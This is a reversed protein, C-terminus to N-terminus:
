PLIEVIVGEEAWQYLVNANESSLLICGYTVRTGLNNTWLLQSGGRTPFGHFGNTFDAGPVPRYVGMFNPMYLNWNGAYANPVHSIIQYVGPWTPSTNIGTSAAWDWKLQDNEYVRTRQESMSVVIRKNPVVPYDLFNDASPITIAQGVTLSDGAGPNAQQVWPYPVGYDWAISTITEGPQVIHQNDHHFLRVQVQLDRQALATQVAEIAADVDIYQASNLASQRGTLYDRLAAAELALSLGIPSTRDPQATLWQSWQAPPLSWNYQQNDIPDFATIQLPQALLDTALALIPSVDTITPEVTLMSLDLVGDAIEADLSSELRALMDILDLKRGPASATAEIRGDILRIGANIPAVDFRSALEDLTVTALSLNLDIKPAVDVDGFLAELPSGLSRGQEYALQATTDADLTIGLLAPDVSWSREGDRLVLEDWQSRLVDAAEPQSLGGVNVGAASVQPLIGRGYTVVFGLTVAACTSLAFVFVVALPAILWWASTKQQPRRTPSIPVPRPQPPLIPRAIVVTRGSINPVEPELRIPQTVASHSADPLHAPM